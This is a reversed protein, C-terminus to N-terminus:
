RGYAREASRRQTTLTGWARWAAQSLEMLAPSASSGDSRRRNDLVVLDVWVRQAHAEDDLLADLAYRRAPPTDHRHIAIKDM